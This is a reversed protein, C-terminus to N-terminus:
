IYYSGYCNTLVSVPGFVHERLLGLSVFRRELQDNWVLNKRCIPTIRSSRGRGCGQEQPEEEAELGVPKMEEKKVGGQTSKDITDGDVEDEATIKPLTMTAARTGFWLRFNNLYLTLKIFLFCKSFLGKLIKLVFENRYKMLVFPFILDREVMNTEWPYMANGAM